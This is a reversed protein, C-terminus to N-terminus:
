ESVQILLQAGIVTASVVLDVEVDFEFAKREELKIDHLCIDAVELVGCHVYQAEEDLVYGEHVDLLSLIRLHNQIRCRVVQELGELSVVIRHMEPVM